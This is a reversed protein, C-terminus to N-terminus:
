SLSLPQVTMDSVSMSSANSAPRVNCLCPRLGEVIVILVEQVLRQWDKLFETIGRCCEHDCTENAARGPPVRFVATFHRRQCVKVIDFHKLRRAPLDTMVGPSMRGQSFEIVLLQLVLNGAPFAVEFFGKPM